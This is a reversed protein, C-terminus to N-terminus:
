AGRLSLDDVGRRVVTRAIALAVLSAGSAVLFAAGVMQDSHKGHYACLGEFREDEAPEHFAAHMEPYTWMSTWSRGDHEANWAIEQYRRLMAEDHIDLPRIDM